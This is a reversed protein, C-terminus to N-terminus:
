LCVNTFQTSGYGSNQCFYFSTKVIYFIQGIIGKAM